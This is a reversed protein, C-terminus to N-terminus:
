APVPCPCHALRQPPPPVERRYLREDLLEHANTAWESWVHWARVHKRRCAEEDFDAAARLRRGLRAVGAWRRLAGTGTRKRVRLACAIATSQLHTRREARASWQQLAARVRTRGAGRM